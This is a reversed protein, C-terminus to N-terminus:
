IGRVIVIFAANTASQKAETARAWLLLVEDPIGDLARGAHRVNKVPNFSFWSILVQRFASMEDVDANSGAFEPEAVLVFTLAASLVMQEEDKSVM